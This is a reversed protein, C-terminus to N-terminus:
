LANNREKSKLVLGDARADCVEPTAGIMSGKEPYIAFVRIDTLEGIPANRLARYREADRRLASIDIRERHEYIMDNCIEVCEDCICFSGLTDHKPGEIIKEVEYQSKGCFDCFCVEVSKRM